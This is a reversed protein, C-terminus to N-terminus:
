ESKTLGVRERQRVISKIGNLGTPTLNVQERETSGTGELPYDTKIEAQGRQDAM